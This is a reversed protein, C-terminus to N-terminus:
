TISGCPPYKVGLSDQKSGLQLKKPIYAKHTDTEGSLGEEPTCEPDEALAAASASNASRATGPVKSAKLGGLQLWNCLLFSLDLCSVQSSTM